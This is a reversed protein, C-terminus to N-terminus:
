VAIRAPHATWCAAIKGRRQHAKPGTQTDLNLDAVRLVGLLIGKDFAVVAGILCLAQGQVPRCVQCLGFNHGSGEHPVVVHLSGM